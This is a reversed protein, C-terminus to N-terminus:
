DGPKDSRIRESVKKWSETILFTEDMYDVMRVFKKMPIALSLREKPVCPRASVDFMGLVARPNEKENEFYPHHVITSCGSGFPAIVGLGDVQDFNALTFLGSLVDPSAFFIVAVPEDGPTLNDFRKFVIYKGKAPICRLNSMVEKVMEPTKIYREGEMKNEIGYSLFYEFDPRMKDTYGFYRKSGGCSLSNINWSLSKGHRVLALESIICSWGKPIGAKAVDGPDETYYFAIPLEADGFYKAWQRLFHNRFKLDM